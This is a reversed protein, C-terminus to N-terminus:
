TFVDGIQILKLLLQNWIKLKPHNLRIHSDWLSPSQRCKRWSFSFSSIRPGAWFLLLL